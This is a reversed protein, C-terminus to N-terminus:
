ITVLRNFVASWRLYFKHKQRHLRTAKSLAICRGDTEAPVIQLSFQKFRCGGFYTFSSLSGKLKEQLRTERHTKRQQQGTHEELSCLVVCSRQVQKRRTLRKLRKKVQKEDEDENRGERGGGRRQRKQKGTEDGRSSLIM